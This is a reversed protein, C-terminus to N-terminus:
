ERPRMPDTGETVREDIGYRLENIEQANGQNAEIGLNVFRVLRDIRSSCQASL